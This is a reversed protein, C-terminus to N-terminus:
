SKRGHAAAFADPSLAGGSALMQGGDCAFVGGTVYAAARSALFVAMAAVDEKAGYRRLATSREVVTRAEPTPALRAMGETGDIPGPVIANVRVGAPGWELALVKTLMDVGAKAACVHAQGVFPLSAQPASINIMACGPKRAVDFAARLVNFTGLLDIDVVTKFANASMVAAPAVFNGAAGSVVISLPGHAAAADRTAAVVADFDRVDASFGLAAEGLHDLAAAVNQSKRSMVAIRAGARKLAAAIELNIGSTGGAIFASKGELLGPAFADEPGGTQTTQRAIVDL